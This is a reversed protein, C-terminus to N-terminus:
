EVVYPHQTKILNQGICCKEFDAQDREGLGRTLFRRVIGGEQQVNRGEERERSVRGVRDGWNGEGWPVLSLGLPYCLQLELTWNISQGSNWDSGGYVFATSM